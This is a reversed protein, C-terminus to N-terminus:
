AEMKLQQAEAKLALNKFTELFLRRSANPSLPQYVDLLSQSCPATTQSRMFKHQEVKCALTDARKIISQQTMTIAPINLAEVITRDISLETAEIMKRILPINKFPTIIDGTYAEHADHMLAHLSTIACGTQLGVFHAVWVSHLAVNIGYEDHTAGNFRNIRSLHWAIDYICIADTSPNLLDLQNLGITTVTTNNM